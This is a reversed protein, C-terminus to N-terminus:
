LEALQKELLRNENILANMQEERELGKESTGGYINAIQQELALKEKRQKAIKRNLVKMTKDIEIV